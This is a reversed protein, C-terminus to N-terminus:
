HLSNSTSRYSLIFFILLTLSHTSKFSSYFVIRKLSVNPMPSQPEKISEFDRESLVNVRIYKKLQGPRSGYGLGKGDGSQSLEAEFALSAAGDHNTLRMTLGDRSGNTGCGHGGGGGGGSGGESVASLARLLADTSLELTIKNDAKSVVKYDSFLAETNIQSHIFLFLSNPRNTIICNLRFERGHSRNQASRHSVVLM